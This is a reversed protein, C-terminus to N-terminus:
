GDRNEDGQLNRFLDEFTKKIKWAYEGACSRCLKCIGQGASGKVFYGYEFGYNGKHWKHCISCRTQINKINGNEVITGRESVSYDYKFAM